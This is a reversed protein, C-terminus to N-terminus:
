SLAYHVQRSIILATTRLFDVAEFLFLSKVSDNHNRLTMKFLQHLQTLDYNRPIKRKETMNFNEKGFLTLFPRIFDSHDTLTVSAIMLSRLTTKHKRTITVRQIKIKLFPWHELKDHRISHAQERGENRRDIGKLYDELKQKESPFFYCRTGKLFKYLTRFHLNLQFRYSLRKRFSM